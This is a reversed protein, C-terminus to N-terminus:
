KRPCTGIRPVFPSISGTLAGNPKSHAQDPWAMSNASGRQPVTRGTRYHWVRCSPRPDCQDGFDTPSHISSPHSPADPLETAGADQDVDLSLLVISGVSLGDALRDGPCVHPEHRGLRERLLAAQHEMAGAMQEDTLLGCHDIRDTGMKCLKANVLEAIESCVGPVRLIVMVVAPVM